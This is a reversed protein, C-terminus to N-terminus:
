ADPDSSAEGTGTRAAARVASATLAAFRDVAAVVDPNLVEMPGGDPGSVEIQETYGGGARIKIDAAKLAAHPEVIRTTGKEDVFTAGSVEAVSETLELGSQVLYERQADRWEQLVRAHRDADAIKFSTSGGFGLQRAIAGLANPKGNSERVLQEWEDFAKLARENRTKPTEAM